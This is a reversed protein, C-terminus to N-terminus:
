AAVLRRRRLAAGALGFGGIMLAWTAPEPVTAISLQGGVTAAFNNLAKGKAPTAFNPSVGDLAFSFGRDVSTSLWSTVPWIASTYTVVTLPDATSASVNGESKSTETIKAFKVVTGSLLNTGSAYTHGDITAPGDLVFSFTANIGNQTLTGAAVTGTAPTSVDTGNFTFKANLNSVLGPFSFFVKVAGLVSSSPTSVTFLHGGNGAANKVWKMDKDNTKEQFSAFTTLDTASAPAAVSLAGAAIAGVLLGTSLFKM